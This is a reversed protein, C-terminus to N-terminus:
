KEHNVAALLTRPTKKRWKVAAAEPDTSPVLPGRNAVLQAMEESVGEQRLGEQVSQRDADSRNQSVKWKGELREIPIEVGVIGKLQAAIFPEPADSM